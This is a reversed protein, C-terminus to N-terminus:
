RWFCAKLFTCASRQTREPTGKHHRWGSGSECINFQNRNKVPGMWQGGGVFSSYHKTSRGCCFAGLQWPWRAVAAPAPIRWRQKHEQSSRALRRNGHHYRRTTPHPFLYVEERPASRLAFWNFNHLPKRPKGWDLNLCISDTKAYTSESRM